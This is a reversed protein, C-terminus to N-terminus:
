EEVRASIEPGYRDLITKARNAVERKLHEPATVEIAQGYGLTTRILWEQDIESIKVVSYAGEKTIESIISQNDEIFNRASAKVRLHVEENVVNVLSQSSKMLIEVGPLLECKIIRDLRFTRDAQSKDCWAMVYTRKNQTYIELPLINRVSRDDRKGGLYEISVPTSKAIAEELIKLFDTKLEEHVVVYPNDIVLNNTLKIQLQAIEAELEGSRASKLLDLGVLIAAMENRNMRRPTTLVQPESVTVYGDEYYMDILELPTYGPLGCMHILMLDENIQAESVSFVESLEAISIGQHELLYPVLDLARATRDLASESM